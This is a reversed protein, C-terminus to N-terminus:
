IGMPSRHCLHAHGFVCKPGFSGYEEPRSGLTAANHASRVFLLQSRRLSHLTCVPHELSTTSECRENYAHYQISFNLISAKWVVKRGDRM